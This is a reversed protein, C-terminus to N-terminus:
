EIRTSTGKTSIGTLTVVLSPCNMEEKCFSLKRTYSSPTGCVILLKVTECAGIM